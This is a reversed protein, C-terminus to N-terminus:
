RVRDTELAPESDNFIFGCEWFILVWIRATSAVFLCIFKTLNKIQGFQVSNSVKRKHFKALKNSGLGMYRDSNETIKSAFQILNVEFFLLNPM